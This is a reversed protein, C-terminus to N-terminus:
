GELVNLKPPPREGGPGVVPLPGGRKVGQEDLGEAENRPLFAAQGTRKEGAPPAMPIPDNRCVFKRPLNSFRWAREPPLNILSSPSLSSKRWM